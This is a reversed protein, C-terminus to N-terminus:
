HLRYDVPIEVWVSTGPRAARAFRMQKVTAVAASDLAPVSYTIRTAGVTGDDLVCSMVRVVGELKADLAARPYEPRNGLVGPPRADFRDPQVTVSPGNGPPAFPIALSGNGPLLVETGSPLPSLLTVGPRPTNLLKARESAARSADGPIPFPAITSRDAIPSGPSLVPGPTRSFLTPQSGIGRLLETYARSRILSDDIGSSEPRTFSWSRWPIPSRPPAAGTLGAALSSMALAGAIARLVSRSNM